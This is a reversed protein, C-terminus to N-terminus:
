YRDLMATFAKKLDGAARKAKEDGVELLDDCAIKAAMVNALPGSFASGSETHTEELLQDLMRRIPKPIAM